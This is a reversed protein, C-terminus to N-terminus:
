LLQLLNSEKKVGYLEKIDESSYDFLIAAGEYLNSEELSVLLLNKSMVLDLLMIQFVKGYGEM